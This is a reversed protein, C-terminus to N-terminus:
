FQALPNHLLLLIVSLNPNSPVSSIIENRHIPVGALDPHDFGLGAQVQFSGPITFRCNRNAIQELAKEKLFVEVFRM